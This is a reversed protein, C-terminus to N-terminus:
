PRAKDLYMPLFERSAFIALEKLFLKVTLHGMSRVLRFSRDPPGNERSLIEDDYRVKPAIKKLCFRM